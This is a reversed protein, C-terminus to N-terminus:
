ENEKKLQGARLKASRSRPNDAVEESSPLVPKKTLVHMSEKMFEKVIRDELSHFSIVVLRGNINLANKAHRLGIKLTQLEDNVEIRLAQFLPALVKPQNTGVLRTFDTTTRIPQLRRYETIKRALQKGYRDEAYNYFIQELRSPSAQMLFQAATQGHTADFRMDLPEEKAFSFGRGIEGSSSELQDSSLGLDFIIGDFREGIEDLKHYSIPRFEFRKSFEEELVEAYQYADADRDLAIVTGSPASKALIARSHGGGGFTCDLYKGGSVPKLYEIVEETLVAKHRTEKVM